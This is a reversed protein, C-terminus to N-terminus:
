SLNCILTVPIIIQFQVSRRFKSTLKAVFIEWSSFQSPSNGRQFLLFAKSSAVTFLWVHVKRLYCHRKALSKQWCCLVEWGIRRSSFLFADHLRWSIGATIKVLFTPNHNQVVSNKKSIFYRLQFINKPSELSIKPTLFCFLYLLSVITDKYIESSPGIKKAIDTHCAASFSIVPQPIAGLSKEFYPQLAILRFVMIPNPAAIRPLERLQLQFIM